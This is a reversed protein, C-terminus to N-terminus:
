PPQPTLTFCDPVTMVSVRDFNHNEPTAYMGYPISAYPYLQNVLPVSWSKVIAMMTNSPPRNAYPRISLTVATM